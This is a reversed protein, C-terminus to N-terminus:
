WRPWPIGDRSLRQTRQSPACSSAPDLYVYNTAANTMTLTGGAYTVLTGNCWVQGAAINLTLGTGATAKYDAWTRGQLYQANAQYIPATSTPQQARLAPVLSQPSPALAFFCVVAVAVLRGIM